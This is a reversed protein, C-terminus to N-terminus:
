TKLIYFGSGEQNETSFELENTKLWYLFRIYAFICAYALDKKGAAASFKKANNRTLVWSGDDHTEVQINMLQQRAADLNKLAWQKELPWHETSARPRENFPLPFAVDVHNILQQFEVHMAEYLNDDGHMLPWLEDLGNEGRKYLTLLPYANGAMDGPTTIPVVVTEVGNIRQRVKNMDGMIWQGGGNPDMLIGSLNFARHKWHILGSWDRSNEAWLVADPEGRGRARVRYAWVFEKLWDAPNSTPEANLGPRPRVRLIALAGDDSKFGQAPAPDAGKFYYVGPDNLTRSIEPELGTNMGLAVCKNLSEESYWGATDRAWIGHGERLFHAKSQTAKMDAITQWDVIQERFPKGTHSRLNSVDKFDYRILAYDPNGRNIEKQFVRVRHNAPHQPSEATALFVKHNRWLPHWQNFSARRVRGIIQQNIGGSANGDSNMARTSKKTMTEVKTWEDIGAVNLTLGAQSKADQFWNPAPLMILSGNKFHQFYCAPGLTNDKGGIDGQTDVKGLQAAFIPANRANFQTYYPWFIKKGADFTQYYACLHQDGLIVARLNMFLWFGFSKGTGFGSSDIVNPIWWYTRLRCKQFADLKVKFIIEAGLVPDILFDEVMTQTIKLHRPTSPKHINISNQTDPKL